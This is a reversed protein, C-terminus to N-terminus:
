RDPSPKIEKLLSLLALKESSFTCCLNGPHRNKSYVCFFKLCIKDEYNNKVEFRITELLFFIIIFSCLLCWYFPLNDQKETKYYYLRGKLIINMLLTKLIKKGNWDM